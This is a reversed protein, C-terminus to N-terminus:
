YIAFKIFKIIWKKGRKKGKRNNKRAKDKDKRAQMGLWHAQIWEAARMEQDLIRQREDELKDVM